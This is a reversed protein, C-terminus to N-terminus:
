EIASARPHCVCEIADLAEWQLRDVEDACLKSLEETLERMRREANSESSM